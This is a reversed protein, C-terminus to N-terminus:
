AKFHEKRKMMVDLDAEIAQERQELSDLFPKPDLDDSPISLTESLFRGAQQSPFNLANMRRRPKAFDKDNYDFENLLNNIWGIM